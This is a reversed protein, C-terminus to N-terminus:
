AEARRTNREIALLVLILSFLAILAVGSGAAAAYYVRMGELEAKAQRKAELKRLKLVKYANMAESANLKQKDAEVVVAAMEDIFDQRYDEPVNDLWGRLVKINQPTSLYKQLPFPLKIGPLWNKDSPTSQSPNVSSTSSEETAVPPKIEELVESVEVKASIKGSLTGSAVVAGIVIAVILGFVILIALYRTLSFLLKNEFSDILSM